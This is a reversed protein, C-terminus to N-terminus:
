TSPKRRPALLQRRVPTEILEVRLGISELVFLVAEDTKEIPWDNAVSITAAANSVAARIGPHAALITLGATV